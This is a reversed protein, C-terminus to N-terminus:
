NTIINTANLTYEEASDNMIQIVITRTQGVAINGNYSANSITVINGNKTAESSFNTITAGEPITIDFQWSQIETDSNNTINIDYEAGYNEGQNWSTNKNFVISLENNLVVENVNVTCTKSIGNITATIVAQGEQIGRINGEADVTVITNDSSSWNITGEANEPVVTATIKSSQGVNIDINTPTLTIDTPLIPEEEEEKDEENDSSGGTVTGNFIVSDIDFNEDGTIIQFEFDVTKGPEVVKNYGKNTFIIQNNKLETEANNGNMAIKTDEPVDIAISWGDLTEETNNTIEIKYQYYIQPAGGWTHILTVKIDYGSTDIKYNINSKGTLNMEQNFIAYGASICVLFMVFITMIIYKTSNVNRRARRRM